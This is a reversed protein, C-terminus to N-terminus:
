FARATFTGGAAVVWERWSKIVSRVSSTSAGGAGVGFFQVSCGSLFPEEPPTLAEGTEIGDTIAVVEADGEYCYFDSLSIWRYIFTSGQSEAQNPLAMLYAKVQKAVKTAPNRRSITISQTLMNSAVSPDGFPVIHVADGPQLAEVKSAAFDAAQSTFHKDSLYVNSGSLDIGLTLHKAHISPAAILAVALAMSKLKM